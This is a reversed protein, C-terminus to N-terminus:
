VGDRSWTEGTFHSPQAKIELAPGVVRIDQKGSSSLLFSLQLSLRQLAMFYTISM